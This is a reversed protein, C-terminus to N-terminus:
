PAPEQALQVLCIGVEEVEVMDASTFELAQLAIDETSVSGLDKHDLQAAFAMCQSLLARVDRRNDLSQTIGLRVRWLHGHISGGRFPDTHAAHIESWASWLICQM